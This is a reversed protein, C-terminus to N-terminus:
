EGGTSIGAVKTNTATPSNPHATRGGPALSRPHPDIPKPHVVGQGDGGIACVGM